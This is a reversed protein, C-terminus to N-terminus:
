YRKVVCVLTKVDDQRLSWCIISIKHAFRKIVSMVLLMYM